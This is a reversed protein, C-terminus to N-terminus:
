KFELKYINLDTFEIQNKLIILTWSNDTNLYIVQKIEKKINQERHFIKSCKQINIVCKNPSIKFYINQLVQSIKALRLDYM